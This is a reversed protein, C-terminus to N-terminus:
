PQASGDLTPADQTQGEPTASEISVPVESAPPASNDMNEGGRAGTTPAFTGVKDFAKVHRAEQKQLHGNLTSSKGELDLIRQQSEEHVKTEAAFKSEVEKGWVDLKDQYVKAELEKIRTLAKSYMDKYKDRHEKETKALKKERALSKDLSKSVRQKITAEALTREAEERKQEVNAHDVKLVELDYDLQIFLSSNREAMQGISGVVQPLVKNWYIQLFPSLNTGVRPRLREALEVRNMIPPAAENWKDYDTFGTNCRSSISTSLKKM